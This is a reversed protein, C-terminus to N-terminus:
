FLLKLEYGTTPRSEKGSNNGDDIQTDTAGPFDWERKVATSENYDNLEAVELIMDQGEPLQRVVDDDIMINLGKQNVYLARQIMSAQMDLKSAISRLLDRANRQM